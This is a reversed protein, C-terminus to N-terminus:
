LAVIDIKLKKGSKFFIYTREGGKHANKTKNPTPPLKRNRTMFAGYPKLEVRIDEFNKLKEELFKMLSLIVEEIEKTSLEIQQKSLIQKLEKALEKRTYIRM